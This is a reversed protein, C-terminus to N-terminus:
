PPLIVESRTHIKTYLLSVCHPVTHKEKVTFFHFLLQNIHTYSQNCFSIFNGQLIGAISYYSLVLSYRNNIIVPFEAVPLNKARNRFKGDIEGAIHCKRYMINHLCFWYYMYVDWHVYYIYLYMYYLLALQIPTGTHPPIYVWDLSIAGYFYDWRSFIHNLGMGLHTHTHLIKLWLSHNLQTLVWM